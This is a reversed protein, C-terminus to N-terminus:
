GMGGMDDWPMGHRTIGRSPIGYNITSCGVVLQGVGLSRCYSIMQEIDAM